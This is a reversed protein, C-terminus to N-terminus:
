LDAEYEIKQGPVLRDCQIAVKSDVTAAVDILYEKEAGPQLYKLSTTAKKSNVTLYADYYLPAIGVNKVKILTQTPSSRYSTIKFRYGTAMGAQKIRDMTQYQPQDNGIMFSIHFQGAMTEFSIGNPGNPSLANRQDNDNYYSIEGGVPATKYRDMGFAAFNRENESAHNKCLFSDDFLGFGASNRLSVLPTNQTDAADISVMWRLNKYTNQMLNVFQTQFAISPFNQGLSIGPVWIHYEAWLGFGVELYALRPDNDYRAAFETFFDNIFAQYESNSWDPFSCKEGEVNGSTEHYNSLNKIYDPVSTRGAVSWDGDPGKGPYTDYFRIVMQHKRSKAGNLLTEVANWNYDHRGTKVIQNYGVYCYELQISATSAQDHNSWLVLGTLPQVGDISSKLPLNQFEGPNVPPTETGSGDGTNGGGSSCGVSWFALCLLGLLLMNKSWSIRGMKTRREKNSFGSLLEIMMFNM